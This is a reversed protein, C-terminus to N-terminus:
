PSWIPRLKAMQAVKELIQTVTKAVKKRWFKTLKKRLRRTEKTGNLIVIAHRTTSLQCSIAM